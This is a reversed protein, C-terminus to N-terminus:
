LLLKQWVPHLLHPAVTKLEERDIEAYPLFMPIFAKQHGLNRPALPPLAPMWEDESHLYNRGVPGM